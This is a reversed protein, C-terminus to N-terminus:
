SVSKTPHSTDIGSVVVAHNAEAFGTADRIEELVSNGEWLEKADVSVIVKHGQALECALHFVSTHDYSHVGVGHLELLKGVDQPQTGTGPVYWGRQLSEHVLEHEDAAVGTFQELIFQQCKIACDDPYHQQGQWFSADQIPTGFM